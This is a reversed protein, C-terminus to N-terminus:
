NFNSTNQTPFKNYAIRSVLTLNYVNWKAWDLSWVWRFQIEYDFTAQLGIHDISKIKYFSSKSSILYNFKPFQLFAFFILHLISFKVIRIMLFYFVFLHTLTFCRRLHNAVKSLPLQKIRETVCYSIGGRNCCYCAIFSFLHNNLHTSAINWWFIAYCYAQILM